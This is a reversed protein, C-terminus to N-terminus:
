KKDFIINFPKLEFLKLIKIQRNDLDLEDLSYKHYKHHFKSYYFKSDSCCFEKTFTSNQHFNLIRNHGHIWM